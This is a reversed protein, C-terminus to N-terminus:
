SSISYASPEFFRNDGIRRPLHRGPRDEFGVHQHAFGVVRPQLHGTPRRGSEVIGRPGTRDAGFLVAAELGLEDVLASRALHFEPEAFGGRMCAYGPTGTKGMSSIWGTSIVSGSGPTEMKLMPLVERSHHPELDASRSPGLDLDAVALHQVRVAAEHGLIEAFGLRDVRIDQAAVRFAFHPRGLESVV